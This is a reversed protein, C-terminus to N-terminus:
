NMEHLYSMTYKKSSLVKLHYCMISFRLPRELAMRGEAHVSHWRLFCFTDREEIKDCSNETPSSIERILEM